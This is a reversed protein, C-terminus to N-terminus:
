RGGILQMRRQLFRTLSKVLPQDTTFTELQARIVQCANHVQQTHHQFQSMYQQRVMAPEVIRVTEYELGRLRVPNRFGFNVEDPHLVRLVVLEHRGHVLRALGDQLLPIPTFCDSIFLILSRRRVRDAVAHMATKPNAIGAPAARALLQVVRNLQSGLASPPLYECVSASFTALGVSEGNALLLYALSAAIRSALDFKSKSNRSAGYGMSGSADLMLLCRLNTEEDYEKVFFRNSRALVRWDIRRPEDGKVYIRHQRFELSAGQNPSRHPGAAGGETVRRALLQLPATAELVAPDLFRRVDAM